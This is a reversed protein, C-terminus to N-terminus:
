EFRDMKLYGVCIDPCKEIPTARHVYARDVCHAPVIEIYLLDCLTCGILYPWGKFFTQKRYLPHGFNHGSPRGCNREKKGRKKKKLLFIISVKSFFFFSFQFFFNETPVFIAM